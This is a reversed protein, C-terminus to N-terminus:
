QQKGIELENILMERSMENYQGGVGQALPLNSRETTITLKSFHDRKSMRADESPDRSTGFHKSKEKDIYSVPRNCESFSNVDM